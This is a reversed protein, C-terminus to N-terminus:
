IYKVIKLYEQIRAKRITQERKAAVTHLIHTKSMDVNIVFFLAPKSFIM